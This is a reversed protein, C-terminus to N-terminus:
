SAATIKSQAYALHFLLATVPILCFYVAMMGFWNGIYWIDLIGVLLAAVFRRGYVYRANDVTVFVMRWLELLAAVGLPPLFVIAFYLLDAIPGSDFPNLLLEMLVGFIAMLAVYSGLCALIMSPGTLILAEVLLLNRLAHKM